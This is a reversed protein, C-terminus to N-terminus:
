CGSGPELDDGDPAIDPPETAEPQAVSLCGQKEGGRPIRQDEVVLGGAPERLRLATGVRTKEADQEFRGPRPHDGASLGSGHQWSEGADPEPHRRVQVFAEALLESLVRSLSRRPSPGDVVVISRLWAPTAETPRAESKSSEEATPVSGKAGIGKPPPDRSDAPLRRLSCHNSNAGRDDSDLM